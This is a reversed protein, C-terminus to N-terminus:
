LSPLICNLELPGLRDLPHNEAPQPNLDFGRVCNGAPVASCLLVRIGRADTQPKPVELGRLKWGRRFSSADGGFESVQKTAYWCCIWKSLLWSACPSTRLKLHSTNRSIQHRKRTGVPRNLSATLICEKDDDVDNLYSENQGRNWINCNLEISYLSVIRNNEYDLKM